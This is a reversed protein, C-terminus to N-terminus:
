KKGRKGHNCKELWAVIEGPDFRVLAGIKKFPIKRNMVDHRLKSQSVKLFRSLEVYTWLPEFQNVKGTTQNKIKKTRLM